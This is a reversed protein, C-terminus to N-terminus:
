KKQHNLDEHEVNNNGHFMSNYIIDFNAKPSKFVSTPIDDKIVVNEGQHELKSALKAEIENVPNKLGKTLREALRKNPDSKVQQEAETDLRL